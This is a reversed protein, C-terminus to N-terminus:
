SSPIELGFCVSPSPMFAEIGSRPLPMLTASRKGKASAANDMPPEDEILLAEGCNPLLAATAAVFFDDGEGDQGVQHGVRQPPV